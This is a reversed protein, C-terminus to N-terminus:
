SGRCAKRALRAPRAGDRRRARARAREARVRPALADAAASRRAAGRRDLLSQRSRGAAAGRGARAAGRAAVGRRARRRGQVGRARRRLAACSAGPLAVRPRDRFLTSTSSRPFEAAPEVGEDRVLETTFPSLTRVADARRIGIRALVDPSRRPLRACRHGTSGRRSRALRRAPRRRRARRQRRRVTRRARRARRARGARAGRRARVACSRASACPLSAHFLLGDLVRPRM